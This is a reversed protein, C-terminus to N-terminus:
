YQCLNRTFFRLEPHQASNVCTPNISSDLDARPSRSHPHSDSQRHELKGNQASIQFPFIQSCVCLKTVRRGPFVLGARKGSARQNLDHRGSSERLILHTRAHETWSRVCTFGDCTEEPSPDDTFFYLFSKSDYSSSWRYAHRRIKITKSLRLCVSDSFSSNDRKDNRNVFRIISRSPVELQLIRLNRSWRVMFRKETLSKRWGHPWSCGKSLSSRTSKPTSAKKRSAM